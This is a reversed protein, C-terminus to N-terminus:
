DLLVVCVSRTVYEITFVITCCVEIVLWVDEPVHKLEPMTEIMFCLISTIIMSLIFMSLVQASTSSRPEEFLLYASIRWRQIHPPVTTPRDELMRRVVTFDLGSTQMQEVTLSDLTQSKVEGLFSITKTKMALPMGSAAVATRMSRRAHIPVGDQQGSQHEFAIKNALKQKKEASFSTTTGGAQAKRMQCSRRAKNGRYIAQIKTAAAENGLDDSSAGVRIRDPAALLVM